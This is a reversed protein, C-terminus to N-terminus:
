RPGGFTHRAGPRELVMTLGDFWPQHAGGDKSPSLVIVCRAASPPLKRM